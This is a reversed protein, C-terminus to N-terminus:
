IITGSVLAGIGLVIVFYVVTQKIYFKIIIYTYILMYNYTYTLM